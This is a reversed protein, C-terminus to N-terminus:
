SRAGASLKKALQKIEGTVNREQLTEIHNRTEPLMRMDDCARQMETDYAQLFRARDAVPNESLCLERWGFYSVVRAILSHSFQPERYSGTIRMQDLVEGWAQIASPTGTARTVIEVAAERLEAITPFFKCRSITLKAAQDLLEPEIDRLFQEYIKVTAEQLIFNPYVSALVILIKHIDSPSSPM